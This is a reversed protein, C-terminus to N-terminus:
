VAVQNHLDKIMADEEAMSDVIKSAEMDAYRLAISHEASGTVFVISIISEYESPWVTKGLHIGLLKADVTTSFITNFESYM